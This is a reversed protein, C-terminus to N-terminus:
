RNNTEGHEVASHFMENLDRVVEEPKAHYIFSRKLRSIYQEKM